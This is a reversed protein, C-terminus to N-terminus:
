TGGLPEGVANAVGLDGVLGADEAETLLRRQQGLVRLGEEDGGVVPGVWSHDDTRAPLRGGQGLPKPM